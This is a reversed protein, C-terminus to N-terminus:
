PASTGHAYNPTDGTGSITLAGSATTAAHLPLVPCLNLLLILTLLLSLLRKKM